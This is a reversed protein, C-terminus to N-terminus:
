DINKNLKEKFYDMYVKQFIGFKNNSNIELIKILQKSSYLDDSLINIDFNTLFKNINDSKYHNIYYLFTFPSKSM